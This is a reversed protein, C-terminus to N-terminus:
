RGRPPHEGPDQVPGRLRGRRRPGQPGRRDPVPCRGREQGEPRGRDDIKAAQLGKEALLDAITEKIKQVKAPSYYSYPLIYEDKEKLKNVIDDEKVKKGTKYTVTKVVPNEEVIIKIIKGRPATAGGRIQINPSSAPRGSSGSIGQPRDENYIIARGSPCTTSSPRRPSGTTGSSRSRRWSEQAALVAPLVLFALLLVPLIKKMDMDKYWIGYRVPM